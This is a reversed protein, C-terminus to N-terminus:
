TPVIRNIRRTSRAPSLAIWSTWDTRETPHTGRQGRIDRITRPVYGWITGSQRAKVSRWSIRGHPSVAEGSTAKEQLARSVARSSPMITWRLRAASSGALMGPPAAERTAWHTFKSKAWSHWWWINVKGVCPLCFMEPHRVLCVCSARASSGPQQSWDRRRSAASTVRRGRARWAGEDIVPAEDLWWVSRNRAEDEQGTPIACVSESSHQGGPYIRGQTGGHISM